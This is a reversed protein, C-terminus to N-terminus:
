SHDATASVEVQCFVVSVLSLSGYSEETCPILGDCLSRSTLVCCEFFVSMWQVGRYLHDPRRLSRQCCLVSVVSRCGYSEETYTIQGICIVRVSLV